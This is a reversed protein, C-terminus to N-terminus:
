DNFENDQTVPGAEHARLRVGLAFLDHVHKKLFVPRGRQLPDHLNDEEEAAKVESQREHSIQLELSM